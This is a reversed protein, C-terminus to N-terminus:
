VRVNLFSKQFFSEDYHSGEDEHWFVAGAIVYGLYNTGRLVFVKRRHIPWSGLQVNLGQAEDPTAETISLGDFLTPLELAAVDKFLVEIRTPVEDSRNSRLLLQGHGVAYLV